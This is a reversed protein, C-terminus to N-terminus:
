IKQNKSSARFFQGMKVRRKKAIVKPPGRSKMVGDEKPRKMKSDLTSRHRKRGGSKFQFLDSDPEEGVEKRFYEADDDEDSDSEKQSTRSRKRHAEKVAAKKRVNAEQQKRRQNKLRKLSAKKERLAKVEEKTKTVFQHFLVEGDCLGSEIKVLQLCLRPGIETLRIASQQLTANGRGPMAQPLPVRADEADEFESESANGGLVYESIDEYRSLNPVRSKILKGVQRSIGVPVARINYHRYEITGTEEEYHMLVCRQIESLKVHQVNITPFTNQMFTALLKMHKTTETPFDNMILMPPKKYQNPATRPKKLSSLVDSMLAYSLVRFTVTPGRPFRSIKMNISTESKTFIVVHTVGLPGAVHVFDKLVNKQRVKLHSATNPELVKRMDLVLQQIDKGVIGRHIVFSRPPKLDELEQAARTKQSARLRRTQKRKKKRIRGM